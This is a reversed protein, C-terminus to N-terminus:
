ENNICKTVVKSNMKVSWMFSFLSTPNLIKNLIMNKIASVYWLEINKSTLVELNKKVQQSSTRKIKIWGIKKNKFVVIYSYKLM